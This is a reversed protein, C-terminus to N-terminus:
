IGCNGIVGLMAYILCVFVYDSIRTKLLDCQGFLYTHQLFLMCNQMHM